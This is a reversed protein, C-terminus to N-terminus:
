SRELQSNSEAPTKFCTENRLCQATHELLYLVAEKLCALLATLSSSLVHSLTGATEARHAAAPARDLGGHEDLIM